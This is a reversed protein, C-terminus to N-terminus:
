DTEDDVGKMKAGCHPCHEFNWPEFFAKTSYGYGCLSCRVVEGGYYDEDNELIWEGCLFDFDHRNIWILVDKIAVALKYVCDNQWLDTRTGGLKETVQDVNEKLYNLRQKTM